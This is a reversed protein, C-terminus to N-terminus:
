EKFAEILTLRKTSYRYANEFDYIQKYCNELDSYIGFVVFSNYNKSNISEALEQLIKIASIYDHNKIKEKASLHKEFIKTKYSYESDLTLYKFFEYDFSNYLGSIYASIDFELLPAQINKAVAYYMPINATIYETNHATKEAYELSLDFEKKASELNGKFLVSKGIEFHSASLILYLEDDKGPLRKILNVCAKYSKARYARYIEDILEKKRYQLLDEDESFFYAIPVSLTSAIHRLTDLSPSAKDSEIRSIMNRTIKDSALQSQTLKSAIRLNKIKECLSM